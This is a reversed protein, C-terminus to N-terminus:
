TIVLSIHRVNKRFKSLQVIRFRFGSPPLVNRGGWFFRGSRSQPGGLRGNLPYRPEKGSNFRSTRSTSWEDRDPASNLILPAIGRSGRYAKIEHVPVIEGYRTFYINILWPDALLAYPSHTNLPNQETSHLSGKEM